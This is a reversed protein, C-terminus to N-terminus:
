SKPMKQIVNYSPKPINSKNNESFCNSMTGQAHIEIKLHKQDYKFGHVPHFIEIVAHAAPYIIKRV